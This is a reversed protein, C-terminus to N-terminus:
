AVIKFVNYSSYNVKKAAFSLVSNKKENYGERNEGGGQRQIHGQPPEPSGKMFFSHKKGKAVSGFYAFNKSFGRLKRLFDPSM